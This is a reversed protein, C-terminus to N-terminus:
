GSWWQTHASSGLCFSQHEARYIRCQMKPYLTTSLLVKQGVEFHETNKRGNQDAYFKQREQASAMADRVKRTVALRVDVFDRAHAFAKAAASWRPREVVDAAPRTHRTVREVTSTRTGNEQHEVGTDATGHINGSAAGSHPHVDDTPDLAHDDVGSHPSRFLM